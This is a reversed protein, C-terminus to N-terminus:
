PLTSQAAPPPGHVARRVPDRMGPPRAGGVGGAGGPRHPRVRVQGVPDGLVVHLAPHPGRGDEMGVPVRDVDGHAVAADDAYAAAGDVPDVAAPEAGLVEVAPLGVVRGVAQGAGEHALVAAQHLRVPVGGHLPDGGAGAVQEVLA